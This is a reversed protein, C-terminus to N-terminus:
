KEKGDKDTHTRAHTKKGERTYHNSNYNNVRPQEHQEPQCSTLLETASVESQPRHRPVTTFPVPGPM